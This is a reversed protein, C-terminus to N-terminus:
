RGFLLASTRLRSNILVVVLPILLALFLSMMMTRLLGFSSLYEPKSYLWALVLPHFLYIQLSHKGLLELPGRWSTQRVRVALAAVVITLATSFTWHGVQYVLTNVAHGRL